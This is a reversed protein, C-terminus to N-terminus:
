QSAMAPLCATLTSGWQPSRAVAVVQRTPGDTIPRWAIRTPDQHATASQPMITTGKGALVSGLLSGGFPIELVVNFRAGHTILWQDLRQRVDCQTPFMVLPEWNLLGWPVPSCQALPNDASMVVVLPESFLTTRWYGKPACREDMLGIDIEGRLFAQRILDSTPFVAVEAPDGNETPLNWLLEPVVTTALSPLTGIRVPGAPMAVTRQVEDWANCLAQFPLVLRNGVDTLTMGQSSRIFLPTGLYEELRRIHKGAAPPTLHLHEAARTLSGTKVTRLFTEIWSLQM